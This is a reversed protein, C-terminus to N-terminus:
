NIKFSKLAELVKNEMIDISLLETDKSYIDHFRDKNTRVDHSNQPGKLIVSVSPNREKAVLNSPLMSIYRDETQDYIIAFPVPPAADNKYNKSLYFSTRMNSADERRNRIKQKLEQILKLLTILKNQHSQPTEIIKKDIIIIRKIKVGKKAADLNSSIFDTAGYKDESWFDINSLTIYEDGKNLLSIISSFVNRLYEYTKLANLNWEGGKIKNIKSLEIKLRWNILLLPFYANKKDFSKVLIEIEHLTDRIEYTFKNKFSKQRIIEITMYLLVAIIVSSLLFIYHKDKFYNETEFYLWGNQFVMNLIGWFALINVWKVNKISFKM